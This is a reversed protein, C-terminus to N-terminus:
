VPHHSTTTHFKGQADRRIVAIADPQIILDRALRNAEDGAATATSEDPYGIAVLTAMDNAGKVCAPALRRHGVPRRDVGHSRVAPHAAEDRVFSGGHDRRPPAQYPRANAICGCHISAM